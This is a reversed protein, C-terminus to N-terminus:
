GQMDLMEMAHDTEAMENVPQIRCAVTALDDESINCRVAAQANELSLRNAADMTAPKLWFAMISEIVVLFILEAVPTIWTSIDVALVPAPKQGAKVAKPLLPAVAVHNPKLKLM